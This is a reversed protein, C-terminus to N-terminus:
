SKTKGSGFQLIQQRTDTSVCRPLHVPPLGSATRADAHGKLRVTLLDLHARGNTRRTM